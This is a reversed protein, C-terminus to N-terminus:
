NLFLVQLTFPHNKNFRKDQLTWELKLNILVVGAHLVSIFFFFYLPPFFFSYRIRKLAQLFRQFLSICVIFYGKSCVGWKVAWLVVDFMLLDLYSLYLKQHICKALVTNEQVGWNLRKFIFTYNKCFSYGLSLSDRTKSALINNM